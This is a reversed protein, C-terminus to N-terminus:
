RHLCSTISRVITRIGPFSLWVLSIEPHKMLAERMLSLYDDIQREILTIRAEVLCADKIALGKLHKAINEIRSDNTQLDSKKLFPIGKQNFTAHLKNINM